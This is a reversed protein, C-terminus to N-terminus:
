MLILAAVGLILALEAFSLGSSSAVSTSAGPPNQTGVVLQADGSSYSEPTSTQQPASVNVPASSASIIPATTGSAAPSVARQFQAASTAQVLAGILIPEGVSEAIATAQPFMAAPINASSINGGNVTANGGSSGGANALEGPSVQSGYWIVQATGGSLSVDPLPATFPVRMMGYYSYPVNMYSYPGGPSSGFNQTDLFFLYVPPTAGLRGMARPCGLGQLLHRTVRM